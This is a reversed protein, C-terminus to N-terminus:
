NRVPSAESSACVDNTWSGSNSPHFFSETSAILKNLSDLAKSGALYTKTRPMGKTGLRHSLYDGINGGAGLQPTPPTMAPTGTFPTFPTPAFSPATPLGDQSMSYVIIRALSTIRWAPKPLRGVEFGAQKDAAPGTTLSGADKL